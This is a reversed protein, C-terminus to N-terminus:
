HARSEVAVPKAAAWLEVIAFATVIGVRLWHTQVIREYLPHQELLTRNSQHTVITAGEDIATRTGGLHDWHHHLVGYPREGRRRGTRLRAHISEVNIIQRAFASRRRLPSAPDACEFSTRDDSESHDQGSKRRYPRSM